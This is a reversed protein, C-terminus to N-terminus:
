INFIYKIKIKRLKNKGGFISNILFEKDFFPNKILENYSHIDGFKSM